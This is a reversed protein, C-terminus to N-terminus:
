LGPRLRGQGARNGTGPRGGKDRARTGLVGKFLYLDSPDTIAVCNSARHNRFQYTHTHTHKILMNKVKVTNRLSEHADSDRSSSKVACIRICLTGPPARPASPQSASEPVSLLSALAAARMSPADSDFCLCRGGAGKAVATFEGTPLDLRPFKSVAGFPKSKGM